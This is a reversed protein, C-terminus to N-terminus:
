EALEAPQPDLQMLWVLVQVLPTKLPEYVFELQLADQMLPAQLKDYLPLYKAEFGVAELRQEDPLAVETM